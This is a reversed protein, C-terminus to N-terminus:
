IVLAAFLAAFFFALAVLLGLFLVLSLGSVYDDCVGNIDNWGWEHLRCKVALGSVSQEGAHNCNACRASSNYDKNRYNPRPDVYARLNRSRM